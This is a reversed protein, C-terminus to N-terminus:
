PDSHPHGPAACSAQTGGLAVEETAGGPGLASSCWEGVRAPLSGSFLLSMLMVSVRLSNQTQLIFGRFLLSKKQESSSKLEICPMERAM